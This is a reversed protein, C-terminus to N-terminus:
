EDSEEDHEDAAVSDDEAPADVDAGADVETTLEERWAPQQLLEMLATALEDRGAGTRSSFAIMQDSDLGLSEGMEAIRNAAVVPGMKDVKTAVVITPAGLEALFDLMQLDDPS